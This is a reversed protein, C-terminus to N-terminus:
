YQIHCNFFLRLDKTTFDADRMLLLNDQNLICEKDNKKVIPCCKQNKNTIRKREAEKDKEEQSM